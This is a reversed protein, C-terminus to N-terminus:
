VVGISEFGSDRECLRTTLSTLSVTVFDVVVEEGFEVSDVVAVMFFSTVGIGTVVVVDCVGEVVSVVVVVTIVVMVSSNGGVVVAVSADVVVAFIAVVVDVVTVVEIVSADGVVVVVVPAADGVVAVVAIVTVALVVSAGVIVVVVDLGVSFVSVVDAVVVSSFTVLCISISFVVVKVIVVVDACSCNDEEVVDNSVDVDVAVVSSVVNNDFTAVWFFSVPFNESADVVVGLMSFSVDDCILGVDLFSINLVTKSMKSWIVFFSCSKEIPSKEDAFLYSSRTPCSWVLTSM